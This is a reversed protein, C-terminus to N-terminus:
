TVVPFIHNDLMILLARHPLFDDSDTVDEKGTPSKMDSIEIHKDRNNLLLKLM